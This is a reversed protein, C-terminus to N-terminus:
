VNGITTVLMNNGKDVILIGIGGLCAIPVQNSASLSVTVGDVTCVHEEASMVIKNAFSQADPTALKSWTGEGQVRM